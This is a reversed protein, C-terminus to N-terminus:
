CWSCPLFARRCAAASFCLTFHSRRFLCTCLGGEKCHVARAGDGFVTLNAALHVQGAAYFLAAQAQLGHLLGLGGTAAGCPDLELLSNAHTGLALRPCRVDVALLTTPAQCAWSPCGRM